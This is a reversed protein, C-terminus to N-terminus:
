IRDHDFLNLQQVKPTTFLAEDTSYFGAVFRTYPCYGKRIVQIHGKEEMEAIYRCINARLIGTEISVELMTKPREKFSHYVTQYQSVFHTDKRQTESIAAAETATKATKTKM